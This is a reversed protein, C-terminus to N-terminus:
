RPGPWCRDATSAGTFICGIRWAPLEVLGKAYAAPNKINAAGRAVRVPVVRRLRRGDYVFTQHVTGAEVHARKAARNHAVTHGQGVGEPHFGM